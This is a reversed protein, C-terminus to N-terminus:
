NDEEDEDEEDGEYSGEESDNYEDGEAEDEDEDEDQEEEEEEEEEPEELEFEASNEALYNLVSDLYRKCEKLRWLITVLVSRFLIDEWKQRNRFDGGHKRISLLSVTNLSRVQPIEIEQIFRRFLCWGCGFDRSESEDAVFMGNHACDLHDDDCDRAWQVIQIPKLRVEEKRKFDKCIAVAALM